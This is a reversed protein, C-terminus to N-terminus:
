WIIFFYFIYVPRDRTGSVSSMFDKYNGSHYSCETRTRINTKSGPEQCPRDRTIVQTIPTGKNQTAKPQSRSPEQALALCLFILSHNSTPIKLWVGMKKLLSFPQFHLSIGVHPLRWLIGTNRPQSLRKAPSNIWTSPPRVSWSWPPLLEQAQSWGRPGQWIYIYEMQSNM